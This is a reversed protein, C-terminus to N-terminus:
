LRVDFAQQHSDVGDNDFSGMDIIKKEEHSVAVMSNNKTDIIVYGPESSSDVRIKSGKFYMKNVSGDSEKVEIMTLAAVVQAFCMILLAFLTRYINKM